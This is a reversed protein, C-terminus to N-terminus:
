ELFQDGSLVPDVDEPAAQSIFIGLFKADDLQRATKKSSHGPHKQNLKFFVHGTIKM